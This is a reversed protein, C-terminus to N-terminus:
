HRRYLTGAGRDASRGREAARRLDCVSPAARAARELGAGGGAPDDLRRCGSLAASSVGRCLQGRGGFGRILRYQGSWSRWGTGVVRSQDRGADARAGARRAATCRGFLFACRFRAARPPWYLRVPGTAIMRGDAPPLSPERLSRPPSHSISVPGGLGERRPPSSILSLLRKEARRRVRGQDAGTELDGCLSRSTEHDVRMVARSTTSAEPLLHSIELRDLLRGRGRAVMRHNAHPTSSRPRTSRACRRLTSFRRQHRAALLSAAQLAVGVGSLTASCRVDQGASTRAKGIAPRFRGLPM